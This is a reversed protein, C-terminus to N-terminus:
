ALGVARGVAPIGAASGLFPATPGFSFVGGDAGLLRYGSYDDASPQIAVIPANLKLAGLSGWFFGSGLVFVGGDSAVLTLGTGDIGLFAGVIPKNLHIGGLSGIFQQGFNFTGGDAAVLTYGGGPFFRDAVVAVIPAALPKGFMGGEYTADGLAYVAGNGSVLILGQDDFSNVAAVIPHGPSTPANGVDAADGHAYTHGDATVLWYGQHDNTSVTAVVPSPTGPTAGNFDTDGFTYVGGGQSVVRYGLTTVVAAMGPHVLCQYYYTGNATFTFDHSAATGNSAFEPVTSLLGSSGVTHGTSVTDSSGQPGTIFPQEFGSPDACGLEPPGNVQNAQTDAGASAECEGPGFPVVSFAAPGLPFSATHIEQSSGIWYHVRDGARIPVFTPLFELLEVDDVTQGVEVNWTRTGDANQTFSYKQAAAEATFAKSTLQAWEASAQAALTSPSTAPQGTPVVTLTGSMNHHILCIYTYTGPATNPAISVAFIAGTTTPSAGSSLVSSGDFSCPVPNAPTSCSFSTPNSNSAPEVLDHEGGDTDPTAVPYAARAQAETTSLPLLTVSHLGNFSGPNWEFLITGGQPVNVNSEPFYHTYEWRAQRGLPPNADVGIETPAAGAAAIHAQALTAKTLLPTSNVARTAGGAPAPGIPPASGAGAPIAPIALMAVGVAAAAVWRMTRM